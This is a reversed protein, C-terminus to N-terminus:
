KKGGRRAWFLEEADTSGKDPIIGEEAKKLIEEPTVKKNSPRATTTNAADATKRLAQRRELIAKTVPDKLAESVSVGLAKATRQVEDVDDEPVQAQMLAYLDKSSLDAESKKITPKAKEVPKTKVWKGEILEFGEAKKARAFLQANKEKLSEVTEEPEETEPVIPDAEPTELVEPADVIEDEM